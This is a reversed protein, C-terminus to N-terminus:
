KELWGCILGVRMTGTPGVDSMSASHPTLKPPQTISLTWGTTGRTATPQFALSIGTSSPEHLLAHRRSARVHSTQPLRSTLDSVREESSRTSSSVLSGTTLEYVNVCCAITCCQGTHGESNGPQSHTGRTWSWGRKGGSEPVSAFLLRPQRLPSASIRLKSRLSVSSETPPDLTHRRGQESNAEKSRKLEDVDAVDSCPCRCPVGVPVADDPFRLWHVPTDAGDGHLSSPAERGAAGLSLLEHRERAACVRRGPGYILLLCLCGAPAEM